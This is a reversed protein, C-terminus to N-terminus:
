EAGLYERLVVAQNHKEDHAGYLLTVKDCGKVAAFFGRVAEQNRELEERYRRRFEPWKAEEHNFWRRLEDSPAIEKLWLSLRAKEKSIGRPWLRDVLVRFGDEDSPASYIRKTTLNM